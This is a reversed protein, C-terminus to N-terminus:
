IQLMRNRRPLIAKGAFRRRARSSLLGGLSLRGLHFRHRPESRDPQAMQKEGTEAQDHRFFSMQQKQRDARGCRYGSRLSNVGDREVPKFLSVGRPSFNTMM